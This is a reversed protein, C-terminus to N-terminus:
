VFVRGGGVSGNLSEACERPSNHRRRSKRGKEDQRSRSRCGIGRQEGGRGLKQTESDSSWIGRVRTAKAFQDYALGLYDVWLVKEAKGLLFSGM